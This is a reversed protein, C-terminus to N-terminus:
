RPTKRRKRALLIGTAKDTDETLNWCHGSGDVLHIAVLPHNRFPRAGDLDEEDCSTIVMQPFAGKLLPGLDAGGETSALLDEICAIAATGLAM